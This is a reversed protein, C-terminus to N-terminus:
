VQVEINKKGKYYAKRIKMVETEHIKGRRATIKRGEKKRDKGHGYKGTLGYLITVMRRQRQEKRREGKKKDEM